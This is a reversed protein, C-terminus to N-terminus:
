KKAKKTTNAKIMMTRPHNIGCFERYIEYALKFYGNAPLFSKMMYCVVGLNNYITATDLTDGGVTDERIKKAMLYCRLAWIYEKLKIFIEGLFCYVLSTDPDIPLLTKNVTLAHDYYKLAQLDYDLSEYLSGLSLSYFIDVQSDKLVDERLKTKSFELRNISKEIFGNVQDKFSDVIFRLAEDEIIKPVM